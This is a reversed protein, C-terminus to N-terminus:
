STIGYKFWYEAEMGMENAIRATEKIQKKTKGKLFSKAKDSLKLGSPAVVGETVKSILPKDEKATFKTAKFANIGWKSGAAIYGFVPLAGLFCVAAEFWNEEAIYWIM